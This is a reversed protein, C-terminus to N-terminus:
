RRRPSQDPVESELADLAEVLRRKRSFCFPVCAAFVMAILGFLLIPAWGYPTGASLHNWAAYAMAMAVAAFLVGLTRFVLRGLFGETRDAWHAM